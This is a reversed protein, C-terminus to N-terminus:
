SGSRLQDRVFNHTLTILELQQVLVNYGTSTHPLDPDELVVYQDQVHSCSLETATESFVSTLVACDCTSLRSIHSPYAGDCTINDRM